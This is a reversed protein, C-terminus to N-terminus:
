LQVNRGRKLSCALVMLNVLCLKWAVAGSLQVRVQYLVSSNVQKKWLAELPTSRLLCIIDPVACTHQFPFAYLTRGGFCPQMALSKLISLLMLFGEGVMETSGYPLLLVSLLSTSRKVQEPFHCKECCRQLRMVSLMSCVGVGGREAAWLTYFDALLGTFCQGM